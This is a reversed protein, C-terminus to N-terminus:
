EMRKLAGEAMRYMEDGPDTLNLTAIFEAEAKAREDMEIYTWALLHHAEAVTPDIEILDQLVRVAQQHEDREKHRRALHLMGEVADEGQLTAATQQEAAPPTDSAERRQPNDTRTEAGPSAANSPADHAPAPVEAPDFSEAVPEPQAVPARESPATVVISLGIAIPTLSVGALLGIVVQPMVGASEPDRHREATPLDLDGVIAQCAAFKASNTFRALTVVRRALDPDITHLQERALEWAPADTTHSLYRHLGVEGVAAVDIGLASSLWHAVPEPGGTAIAAARDASLEAVDAWWRMAMWALAFPALLPKPGLGAALPLRILTLWRAHHDKLHALEHALAARLELDGLERVMGETVFIEPVGWSITFSDVEDSPIVYIPPTGPASLRDCAAEAAEHVRRHRSPGIRRGASHLGDRHRRIGTLGLVLGLHFIVLLVIGVILAVTDHFPSRVVLGIMLAEVLVLLAVALWASAVFTCLEAPHRYDSVRLRM